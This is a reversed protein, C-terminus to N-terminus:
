PNTVQSSTEICSYPTLSKGAARAGRSRSGTAVQQQEGGGPLDPPHAFPFDDKGLGQAVLEDKEANTKAKWPSVANQEAYWREAYKMLQKSIGHHSTINGYGQANYRLRAEQQSMNDFVCWEIVALAAEPLASTSITSLPHVRAHPLLANNAAM